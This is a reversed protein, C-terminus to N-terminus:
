LVGARSKRHSRQLTGPRVATLVAELMGQPRNFFALCDFFVGEVPVAMAAREIDYANTLHMRAQLKQFSPQGREDLAVIEGDIVFYDAPLRKLADRLEPYRNTILTGNRGVMELSEGRREALVRVGDYKIEFIWDAGSFPREQLTALM